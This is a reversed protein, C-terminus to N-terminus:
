HFMHESVGADLRARYDSVCYEEEYTNYYEKESELNEQYDAEIDEEYMALLDEHYRTILDDYTFNLFGENILEKFQSNNIGFEEMFLENLDGMLQNANVRLDYKTLKGLINTREYEIWLYEKEMAM